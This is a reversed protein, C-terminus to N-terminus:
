GTFQERIVREELSHGPDFLIEVSVSRDEAVTASAVDRVATSDAAAHVPRREPDLVVLEIKATGPLLAGRWRRPRFPSIPTLALLSSGIPIIPGHASFNYASSGAPTAVLVGDGVLKDLRVKGDIRVQMNAAQNAFRTLAVQNFALAEHMEGGVSEVAMRLPHIRISEASQLREPLETDGYENMLFGVTGRNMGYLPVGLALYQHLCSLMFGDGGLVVIVDAQDVQVFGYHQGLAAYGAVARPASSHVCAIRQYKM